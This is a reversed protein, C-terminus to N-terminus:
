RIEELTPAYRADKPARCVLEVRTAAKRAALIAPALEKDRTACRFGTDLRVFLVGDKEGTEAIVGVPANTPAPAPQKEAAAGFAARNMAEEAPAKEAPAQQSKRQGAQVPAQAPRSAAAGDDDEYDAAIGLIAKRAYRMLYTIGSGISQPDPGQVEATLDNYIWQGSKHALMTRITVMRAGPFPFQLMALGNESLPKRTARIVDALTEYDFKYKGGTRRSEVEATLTKEVDDFAGQAVALATILEAIEDSHRVIVREAQQTRGAPRDDARPIVQARALPAPAPEPLFETTNQREDVTVDNSM